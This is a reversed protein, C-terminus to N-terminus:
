RDELAKKIVDWQERRRRDWERAWGLTAVIAWALLLILSAVFCPPLDLM